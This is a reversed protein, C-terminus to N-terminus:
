EGELRVPTVFGDPKVALVSCHVHRLIREATNGMILGPIGSRGVTGMVILDAKLRKATAPIVLGPDGEVLHSEYRVDGPPNAGLLSEMWQRRVAESEDLARDATGAPLQPADMLVHKELFRWAHVVHLEGKDLRAASIAFDMIKQNLEITQQNLPDLDVAAMIRGNRAPAREDAVWVPCPCKRLVKMISSGFLAERLGGKGASVIVLDHGNRLVERIIELEPKGVLLKQRVRIRAHEAASAMVSLRDGIHRSEEEDDASPPEPGRYIGALMLEAGNRKALLLAKKFASDRDWDHNVVLLIKKFYRVSVHNIARAVQAAAIVDRAETEHVHSLESAIRAILKRENASVRRGLAFLSSSAAATHLCYQILDTVSGKREGAPLSELLMRIARLSRDFFEQPPRHRCWEDLKQYPRSGPKVGRLRAIQEIHDRESDTVSGSLWAVQLLPVLHLLNVTDRDYGLQALEQLIEQNNTGAAKALLRREEEIAAHRRLRDILDADLKRFYDDEQITREPLDHLKNPPM